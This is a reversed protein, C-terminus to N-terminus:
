DVWNVGDVRAVGGVVPEANRIAQRWSALHVTEHDRHRVAGRVFATREKTRGDARVVLEAAVHPNGATWTLGALASGIDARVRLFCRGAALATELEGVVGRAPEVFFWEGQRVVPGRDAAADVTPPRLASRAAAVTSCATPVLAVFLDREDRGALFRRKASAPRRWITWGWGNAEIRLDGNEAPLRARPGVHVAAWRRPEDVFLLLQRLSPNTDLVEVRTPSRGPWVRFRPASRRSRDIALHFADGGRSLFAPPAVVAEIGASAFRTVLPHVVPRM